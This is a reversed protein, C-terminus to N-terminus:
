YPRTPESIHILSLPLSTAYGRRGLAVAAYARPVSAFVDNDQLVEHLVPGARDLAIESRGIASVASARLRAQYILELSNVLNRRGRAPGLDLAPPLGFMGEPRRPEPAMAAFRDHATWWRDMSAALESAQGGDEIRAEAKRKTEYTEDLFRWAGLRNARPGERAMELLLADTEADRTQALSHIVRSAVWPSTANKLTQKTRKVSWGSPLSLLSEGVANVTLTDSNMLRLLRKALGASPSDLWGLSLLGSTKLFDSLYKHKLLFTEGELSGLLGLATILRHRVRESPEDELVAILQPRAADAELRGLALAAAARVGLDKEDLRQILAQAARERMAQFAAGDADQDGGGQRNPVLFYTRNVEWWHLWSWRLPKVEIGAPAPAIPPPPPAETHASIDAGVGASAGFAAAWFWRRLRYMMSRDTTIIRILIAVTQEPM